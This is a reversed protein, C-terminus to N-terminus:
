NYNPRVVYGIFRPILDLVWLNNTGYSRLVDCYYLFNLFNESEIIMAFKCLVIIKNRKM